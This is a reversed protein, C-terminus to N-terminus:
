ECGLLLGGVGVDGVRGGVVTLGQEFLRQYVKKWTGGSGVTALSSVRDYEVEDLNSLDILVGEDINAAGPFPSHGGSRIAFTTNSKTLLPVVTQLQQVTDPLFICWPSAWADQM